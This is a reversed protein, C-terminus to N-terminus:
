DKSSSSLFRSFTEDLLESNDAWNDLILDDVSESNHSSDDQSRSHISILDLKSHNDFIMNNIIITKSATNLIYAEYIKPDFTELLLCTSQTLRQRLPGKSKAHRLLPIGM